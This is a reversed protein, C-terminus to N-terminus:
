PGSAGCGRGGRALRLVHKLCGLPKNVTNPHTTGPKRTCVRNRSEKLALTLEQIGAFDIGCLRLDGIRPVVHRRLMSEKNEISSPKNFLTAAAM